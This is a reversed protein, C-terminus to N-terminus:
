AKLIELCNIAGQHRKITLLTEDANLSYIKICKEDGGTAIFNLNELFVLDNIKGRHHSGVEKLLCRKEIADKKLSLSENSMPTDIERELTVYNNVRKLDWVKLSRDVGSSFLLGSNGM